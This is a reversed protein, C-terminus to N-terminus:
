DHLAKKLWLGYKRGKKMFNVPDFSEEWETDASEKESIKENSKLWTKYVAM